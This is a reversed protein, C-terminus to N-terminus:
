YEVTKSESRMSLLSGYDQSVDAHAPSSTTTLKSIYSSSNHEGYHIRFYSRGQWSGAVYKSKLLSVIGGCQNNLEIM